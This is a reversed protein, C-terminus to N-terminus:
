KQKYTRTDTDYTVNCYEELAQTRDILERLMKNQERTMNGHQAFSEKIQKIDKATQKRFRELEKLIPVIHRQYVDNKIFSTLVGINEEIHFLYIFRKWITLQLTGGKKQNCSTCLTQLNSIDNSGGMAKPVIHDVTLQKEASSACCVLCKGDRKLVKARRAQSVQKSM